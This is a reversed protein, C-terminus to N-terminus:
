LHYMYTATPFVFMKSIASPDWGTFDRGGSLYWTRIGRSRGSGTLPSFQINASQYQWEDSYTKSVSDYLIGRLVMLDTASTWDGVRIEDPLPTECNIHATLAGERCAVFEPHNTCAIMVFSGLKLWAWQTAFADGDGNDCEVVMNAAWTGAASFGTGVGGNAEIVTIRNQASTLSSNLALYTSSAHAQTEYVSLDQPGILTWTAPESSCVYIKGRRDVIFDGKKFDGSAPPGSDTGGVFRAGLGAGPLGIGSGIASGRVILGTPTTMQETSFLSM